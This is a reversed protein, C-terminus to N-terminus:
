PPDPFIVMYKQDSWKFQVNLPPMEQGDLTMRPLEIKFNRTEPLDLIVTGYSGHRFHSPLPFDTSPWGDLPIVHIAEDAFIVSRDKFSKQIALRNKDNSGFQIYDTFIGKRATPAVYFYSNGGKVVRKWGEALGGEYSGQRTACGIILFITFYLFTSFIYKM